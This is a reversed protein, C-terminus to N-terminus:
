LHNEKQIQEEVRECLQVLDNLDNFSLLEDKDRIEMNLNSQFRALTTRPEEIIEARLMFLEMKQRYEEVRM